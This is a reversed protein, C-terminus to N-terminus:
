SAEIQPGPAPGRELERYREWAQVIPGDFALRGHHLVAARPCLERAAEYNHSVFCFTIGAARFDRIRAKCKEQFREDGVALVEDVILIDPEVDQAIAFGLRAYMGSSYNKIPMDIFDGLESFAVIRDFKGEMQRRSFGLLAGNLFINDRGSLEPDFGAGLEIMPSIRGQVLVEGEDPTLVGAITKLLTSKGSGNHGVLAIAEGPEIDLSVHRVAWFMEASRLHRFRNVVAEKLTSVKERYLRYCVGADRIRIEGNRV